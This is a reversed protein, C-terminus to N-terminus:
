RKLFFKFQLITSKCCQTVKQYVVFHSLKIYEEESEEGNYNMILYLIYNGTDYLLIKSTTKFLTGYEVTGVELKKGPNSCIKVCRKQPM